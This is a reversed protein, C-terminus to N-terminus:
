DVKFKSICEDITPYLTYRKNGLQKMVMKVRKKDEASFYSIHWAANRKRQEHGDDLYDALGLVSHCGEPVDAVGYKKVIKQLVSQTRGAQEFLYRQKVAYAARNEDYANEGYLEDMKRLEPFHEACAGPVRDCHHFAYEINQFIFQLLTEEADDENENATIRALLYQDLNEAASLSDYSCGCRTIKDLYDFYEFDPTGFSHGLVYINEIDEIHLGAEHFAVCMRDINDAVHKDTQYLMDEVAYLGEVRPMRHSGIPKMFHHEILERFATEPHTAHGFIISNRDDAKGHIHYDNATNVWFRKGLTDTYNFNVVFCDDPFAYGSNENKVDLSFVWNCFMERLVSQAEQVVNSLDKIGNKSRGFFLNLQQEDVKDLATEFNWFFADPLTKPNFPNSYILEVATVQKKQGSDDIIEYRRYGMRDTVEDIHSSYYKRFEDYSTPLNQWRDFGNGVIILNKFKSMSM